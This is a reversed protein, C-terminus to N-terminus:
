PRRALTERLSRAAEATVGGLASPPRGLGPLVLPDQRMVQLVNVPPIGAAFSRDAARIFANAIIAYGTDTPHVGDLSFIGGLFRTTLRQGGVVFGFADIRTLLRHIDVLAAGHRRAEREIADNYGAVAERITAVESATLVLDPALPGPEAGALIAQIHPLADPIVYDGEAIGLPPGIVSLPLGLMAALEDASTLYPIVTVDPVNGVVIRAGTASLRDFVEALDAEFAPLPTLVSADATLAAALADNSGIGLLITDPQLAEAWEVQSRSIGALLGPLGLVLDTLSDVPLDPRTALADHVTAGPVALDTAQVEPDTRGPSVGPVPEIVPPPGPSVLRLVNPIGPAGILPLALPVRAKAAFLAAYGHVQQADLLSGSQYGASLSDGVVVLRQPKGHPMATDAALAPVLVALAVALVAAVLRSSKRARM